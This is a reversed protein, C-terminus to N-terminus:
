QAPALQQKLWSIGEEESGVIKYPAAQKQVLFIGKLIFRTMLNPLFYAVGACQNEMQEFNEKLWEGQRIRLESSLYKVQSADFLLALKDHKAYLEDLIQLYEEFEERSPEKASFRIRFLPADQEELTAYKM